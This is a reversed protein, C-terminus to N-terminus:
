KYCVSCYGKFAESAYFNHCNLCMKQEDSSINGKEISM